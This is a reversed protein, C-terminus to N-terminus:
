GMGAIGDREMRDGTPEVRWDICSYPLLSYRSEWYIDTGRHCDANWCFDYFGGFGM